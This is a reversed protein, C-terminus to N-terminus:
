IHTRARARDDIYYIYKRTTSGDSRADQAGAFNTCGQVARCTVKRQKDLSFNGFFLGGGDSRRGVTNNERGRKRPLTLSPATGQPKPAVCDRSRKFGPHAM